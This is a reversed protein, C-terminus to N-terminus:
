RTSHNKPRGCREEPESTVDLALDYADAISQGRKRARCYFYEADKFDDVRPLLRKLRALAAADSPPCEIAPTKPEEKERPIFCVSGVVAFILLLLLAAFFRETRTRM